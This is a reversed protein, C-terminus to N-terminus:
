NLAWGDDPEAAEDRAIEAQVNRKVAMLRKNVQWRAEDWALRAALVEGGDEENADYLAKGAEELMRLAEAMGELVMLCTAGISDIRRKGEQAGFVVGECYANGIAEATQMDM